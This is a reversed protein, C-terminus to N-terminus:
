RGEREKVKGKSSLVASGDCVCVYEEMFVCLSLLFFPSTDRERWLYIYKYTHTMAAEINLPEDGKLIGGGGSDGGKREVLYVIPQM